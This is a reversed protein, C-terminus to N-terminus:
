KSKGKKAYSGKSYEYIKRSILVWRGNRKVRVLKETEVKMIGEKEPEPCM